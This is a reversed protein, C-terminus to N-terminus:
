KQCRIEHINSGKTRRISPSYFTKEYDAKLHIVPMEFKGMVSSSVTGCSQKGMETLPVGLRGNLDFVKLM